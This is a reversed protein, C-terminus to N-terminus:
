TTIATFDILIQMCQIRMSYILVEGKSAKLQTRFAETIVKKQREIRWKEHSFQMDENHSVASCKM